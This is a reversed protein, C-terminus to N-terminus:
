SHQIFSKEYTGAAIKAGLDYYLFDLAEKINPWEHVYIEVYPPQAM